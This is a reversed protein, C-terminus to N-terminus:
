LLWLSEPYPPLLSGATAVAESISKTTHSSFDLADDESLGCFTLEVGLLLGSGPLFYM